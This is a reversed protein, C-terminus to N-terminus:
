REIKSYIIQSYGSGWPDGREYLGLGAQNALRLYNDYQGGPGFEPKLFDCMVCDVAVPDTAFFLSNPVQNGFTIWTSPPASQNPASFLGDAVTLVAKSGIHPNRYLDVLANYNGGGYGGLSGVIYDHLGEPNNISGFHNKFTLSVEAIGHPKMIPVNILYCAGVLLDTVRTAPPMPVGSPPYFAVFAHPDNSTFGAQGDGFFRVGSYLNGSVFRDLIPRIADYVWVDTEAVGIQKLGRVVANVPEILADIAGSPVWSNNFSVKIAIGQGPQYDPLLTQWANAVTSQGTLAMLGQDVMDNVTTQNVYDWYDVQGTWSTANNSHVHVVKGTLLGPPNATPTPTAESKSIFPMYARPTLGAQPSQSAASAFFRQVGVLGVGGALAAAIKLMERRSVRTNM